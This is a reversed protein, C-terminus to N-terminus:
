KKSETKIRQILIYYYLRLSLSLSASLAPSTEVRLSCQPLIEIGYVNASPLGFLSTTLNSVFAAIHRDISNATKRVVASRDRRKCKKKAM